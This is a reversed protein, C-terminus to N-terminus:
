SPRKALPPIAIKPQPFYKEDFEIKASRRLIEIRDFMTQQRMRQAISARVREMPQTVHSNMRFIHVGLPSPIPESVQGPQMAFIRAELDQPLMGPTFSGLEGGKQATQVEDSAQRAIAAFDGGKKLRRSVALAKDIAESETPPRRGDRPRIQGGEYAFVIHSIDVAEFRGRNQDYFTRIAADSPQAIVKQAAANALINARDAALQAAVKPDRDLGLKRAEQEMLKLRILQEAFAMKGPASAFQRQMDEPLQAFVAEFDSQTVPEGNIRIVVHGVAEPSAGAEYTFPKSSIPQFGPGVAALGFCVGAVVLVALVAIIADKKV